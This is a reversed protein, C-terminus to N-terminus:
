KVMQCNTNGREMSCIGESNQSISSKFQDFYVNIKLDFWDDKRRFKRNKVEIKGTFFQDSDFGHKIDFGIDLLKRENRNLWNVLDFVSKDSFGQQSHDKKIKLLSGEDLALDL